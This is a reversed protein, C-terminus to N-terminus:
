GTVKITDITSVQIPGHPYLPETDTNHFDSVYPHQLACDTSFRKQPNFRLCLEMFDLSTNCAQNNCLKSLPTREVAGVGEIMNAAFPSLTSELDEQSPLGTMQLIKEVQNMTSNGPLIPRTCIMEGLICGVAWM